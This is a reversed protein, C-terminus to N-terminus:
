KRAIEKQHIIYLFSRIIKEKNEYTYKICWNCFNEIINKNQDKICLNLM